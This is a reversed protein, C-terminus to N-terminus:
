RKAEPSNGVGGEGADSRNVDHAVSVLNPISSDVGLALICGNYVNHVGPLTVIENRGLSPKM